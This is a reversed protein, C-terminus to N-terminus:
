QVRVVSTTSVQTTSPVGPYSFTTSFPASVTVQIYTEATGTSCTAPCSVHTGGISCACFQSSNVALGAIGSADATAAAAIGTADGYHAPSMMGYQTAARAASTVANATTFMRAFDAVGFVLLFLIPAAIAFEILANGRRGRRAPDIKLM